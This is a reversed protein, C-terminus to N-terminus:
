KDMEAQAAGYQGDVLLKVVRELKDIRATQGREKKAEAASESKTGSPKARPGM